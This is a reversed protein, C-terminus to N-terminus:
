NEPVEENPTARQSNIPRQPTASNHLQSPEIWGARAEDSFLRERSYYKLPLDKDALEPCRDLLESSSARSRCALRPM